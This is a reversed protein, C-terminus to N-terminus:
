PRWPRILRDGYTSEMILYDVPPMTEPDNIIPLDRPRCRGFVRGAGRRVMRRLGFTHFHLGLMHGADYSAYTVGPGIETPTHM